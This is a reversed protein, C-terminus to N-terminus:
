KEPKKLNRVILAFESTNSINTTTNATRIQVIKKIVKSEIMAVTITKKSVKAKKSFTAIMEEEGISALAIIPIVIVMLIFFVLLRRKM